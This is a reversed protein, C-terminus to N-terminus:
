KRFGTYTSVEQVELGEDRLCRATGGTSYIEVGAKALARAFGGLGLKDSVSILARKIPPSEM